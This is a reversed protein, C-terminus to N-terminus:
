GDPDDPWRVEGSEVSAVARPPRDIVEFFRNMVVETVIRPLSETEADVEGLIGIPIQAGAMEAHGGASGISDFAERMIEGIDLDTGRTRASIYITGNAIGYVMTTSIGEMVLLGEAAQALADRDAISGAFSVLVSDRQERNAIARAITDLTDGTVSPNEVRELVGVDAHPLLFAAAEFDPSDVERTFDRTDVRIGYLLGTATTESIEIGLQRLYDVLLTSTAGATTRIDAFEADVLGRPPHHDIVIDVPTEPPLQDNVGPRSHDVLAYGGYKLDDDPHPNRLSLDLLNVLARNEQHAIDGFYCAEADTNLAQAIDRLAIASGIADPDPNDHMFVGLPGTVRRLAHTLGQLRAGTEGNIRDILEGGVASGYEIVHDAVRSAPEDGDSYVILSAAPFVERAALAIDRNAVSDDSAVFVADVPNDVASLVVPDMPDSRVADIGRERLAEVRGRDSDIVRLDRSQGAMVEVVTFGVEGCGLVLWGM